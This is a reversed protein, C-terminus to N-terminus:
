GVELEWMAADQQIIRNVRYAKVTQGIRYAVTITDGGTDISPRGLTAHNRISVAMKPVMNMGPTPITQPPDRVVVAGITVPTGNLPTYVISEGFDDTDV